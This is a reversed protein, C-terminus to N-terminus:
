IAAACMFGVDTEDEAEAVRRWVGGKVAYDGAEVYIGRLLFLRKTRFDDQVSRSITISTSPM